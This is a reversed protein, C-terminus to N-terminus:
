RELALRTGVGVLALGSVWDIARRVRSRLMLGRARAVVVAYRTLWVAGMTWFLAGFALFGAFGSAFQPLLSTFFIAIKPNGLNSFLGQRYSSGPRSGAEGRHHGRLTQLGLWVLYLAGAIRITDSLPPPALPPPPAAVVAAIGVSAAVTWVAIGCVIGSTTRLGAPRGGLLTNRVILATDPGPTCIVVAAIGVFAPVHNMLARAAQVQDPAARAGRPRADGEDVRRLRGVLGRVRDDRQKRRLRPHPDRRPRPVLPRAHDRRRLRRIRAAGGRARAAHRCRSRQHARRPAPRQRGLPPAERPARPEAGRGLPRLRAEAPRREQLQVVLRVATLQGRPRPASG